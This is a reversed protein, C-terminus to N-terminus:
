AWPKKLKLEGKENRHYRDRPDGKDGGGWTGTPGGHNTPPDKLWEIAIHNPEAEIQLCPRGYADVVEKPTKELIRAAREGDYASVGITFKVPLGFPPNLAFVRLYQLWWFLGENV